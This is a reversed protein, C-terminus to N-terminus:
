ILAPKCLQDQIVRKQEQGAGGVQMSSTRTVTPTECRPSRRRSVTGHQAPPRRCSAIPSAMRKKKSVETPEETKFKKLKRSM